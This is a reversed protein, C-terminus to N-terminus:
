AGATQQMRGALTIGAVAVLSPTTWLWPNSTTSAVLLLLAATTGVTLALVVIYTDRNRRRRARASRAEPRPSTLRLLTGGGLCVAAVGLLLLDFLNM